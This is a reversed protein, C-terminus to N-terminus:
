QSSKRYVDRLCLPVLKECFCCHNGCSLWFFQITERSVESVYWTENLDLLALNVSKVSLSRFNVFLSRFDGDKDSAHGFRRQGQGVSVRQWTLCGNMSANM